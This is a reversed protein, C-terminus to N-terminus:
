DHCEIATISFTNESALIRVYKWNGATDKMQLCTGAASSNGGFLLSVTGTDITGFEAVYATSSSATRGSSALLSTKSILTAASAVGGVEFDTSISANGTVQFKTTPARTGIGVNGTKGQTSVWFANSISAPGAFSVTGRVELDSSVFVDNSTTIYHTNGTATTGFRNYAVSAFGGVQITNGTLFYSASATGQVEFTTGPTGGIGVRGNGTTDITLVTLTGTANQFRFATASDGGTGPRTQGNALYLIGSISATTAFSVTSRVELDGSILLDNTTSIYNSHGTASTGFRSYAVSAYAGVQITNGTLFYAASATNQSEFNGTTLINTGITSDASAGGPFLFVFSFAVIVVAVISRLGRQSKKNM